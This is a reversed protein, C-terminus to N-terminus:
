AVFEGGHAVTKLADGAKWHGYKPKGERTRTFTNAFADDEQAFNSM